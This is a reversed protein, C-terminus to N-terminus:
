WDDLEQSAPKAPLSRALADVIEGQLMSLYSYLAYQPALPEADRLVIAEETVDLQTGLVLRLVEIGDLWQHLTTEDLTAEHATRELVELCRRHRDSLTPHMMESYEREAKADDPYAVPFVRRTSDDSSELLEAAQAPLAKLLDREQSRLGTRYHGHRDRSFRRAM